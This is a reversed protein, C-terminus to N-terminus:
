GDRGAAAPPGDPMGQSVVIQTRDVLVHVGHAAYASSLASAAQELSTTRISGVPGHLTYDNPHQYSLTMRADRAWRSLMAKLTGDAPSAQYVYAQQLPIPQPTDAFRNVARWRGGFDAAEPTACASLLAAATLAIGTAAGRLWGRDTLAVRLSSVGDGTGGRLGTGPLSRSVPLRLAPGVRPVRQQDIVSSHRIRAGAGPAFEM